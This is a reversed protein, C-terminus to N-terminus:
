ATESTFARIFRKTSYMVALRMSISLFYNIAEFEGSLLRM